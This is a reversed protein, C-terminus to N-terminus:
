NAPMPLPESRIFEFLDRIEQDSLSDLIGEPMLSAESPVMEDIQSKMLNTRVNKADLITVVDATSEALVGTLIRGDFTAVVYNQYGERIIAGPDIVNRLLVSLNKRDAGSLDPGVKQGQGFLQHCNLCLKTGLVRGRQADGTGKALVRNIAEIRGIVERSSQPRVRGWLKECRSTAAGGQHLLIRRVQELSFEKPDVQGQEAAVLLAEAWNARSILVERIRERIRPSYDSYGTLTLQPVVSNDITQLGLLVAEHIDAPLKEKLMGAFTELNEARNLDSLLRVFEVREATPTGPANLRHMAPVLADEMGLRLSLRILASSPNKEKLWNQFLDDLESPTNALKRGAMQTELAQVLRDREITGHASELVRRCSAFDPHPAAAFYRMALREAVTSAVVTHQWASKSTFLRLVLERDSLAKDEIAWWLLLPIHRDQVDDARSCLESVIPLSHTGPWRKCSCALQSRVRASPEFRALSVLRNALQPSLQKQDGLFRITWGRIDESTHDLMETAIKDDFGGCVYVGWFLRLALGPPTAPQRLKAILDPVLTTDRREALCRLSERCYWNNPHNLLEILQPSSQQNIPLFPETSTGPFRVKAGNITVRWIRGTEHPQYWEAVNKPSSHAIHDECWDAMYLAGDPGVQNDAPRFWPDTSTILNEQFHTEFTSGTSPLRAVRMANARLNPYIVANRFREPLTEAQYIICGGTLASGLFGVHKVPSFYGFSYPNHLPGHKGFGKIYYAGQVHHCLPETTNGGAFLQGQADFEIGWTNGGGEAFLEFDKTRPHYRWIGQQFEIGRIRATVTSGQAGYLWGDPGWTLSNAFAHADEMGFGNLLVEPQGDPHDDHNKDPYFLLYPPQVVFVGDYGLAFGSALNLNTIFDRTRDAIGDFNTDELLSIRDRGQPGAPPPEPIMDYKTRLYQDVAVAKLGNPTPYQLYQLVWLRGRDDFTISVPKRVVPESAVVQVELGASVQLKRISEAPSPPVTQLTQADLRNRHQVFCLETILIAVACFLRRACWGPSPNENM